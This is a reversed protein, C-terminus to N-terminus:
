LEEGMPKRAGFAEIHFWEKKSVSSIFVRVYLLTLTMSVVLSSSLNLQVTEENGQPESARAYRASRFFGRGCRIIM